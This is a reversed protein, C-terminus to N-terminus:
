RASSQKYADLFLKLRRWSARGSLFTLWAGLAAAAFFGAAVGPSSPFAHPAGSLFAVGMIMATVATAGFLCAGFMGLAAWLVQIRWM